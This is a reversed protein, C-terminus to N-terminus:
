AFEFKSPLKASKEQALSAENMAAFSILLANTKFCAVKFILNSWM